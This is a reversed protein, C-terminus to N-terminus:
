RVSNVDLSLNLIDDSLIGEINYSLRINLVHEEIYVSLHRIVVAPMYTDIQTTIRNELEAVVRHSENEFLFTRVGVGFDPNMVREGPNTLLLNKLNQKTNEALTKNLGICGEAKSVAVPLKPSIGVSM